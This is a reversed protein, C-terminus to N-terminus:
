FPNDTMGDDPTELREPLGEDSLLAKEAEEIIEKLRTIAELGIRDRRADFSGYITLVTADTEITLGGITTSADPGFPVFTSM